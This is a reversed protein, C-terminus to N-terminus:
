TSQRRNLLMSPILNDSPPVGRSYVLRNIWDFIFNIECTTNYNGVQIHYNYAVASKPPLFSTYQVGRLEMFSNFYDEGVADVLMSRAQLRPGQVYFILGCVVFVIVVGAYIPKYRRM